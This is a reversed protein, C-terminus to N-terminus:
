GITVVGHFLGLFLLPYIYRYKHERKLWEKWRTNIDSSETLDAMTPVQPELLGSHRLM